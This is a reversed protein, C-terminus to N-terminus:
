NEAVEPMRTSISRKAVQSRLKRYSDGAVQCVRPLRDEMAIRGVINTVHLGVVQAGFAVLAEIAACRVDFHPDMEAARAVAEIGASGLVQEACLQFAESDDDTTDGQEPHKLIRGLMVVSFRRVAWADSDRLLALLKAVQVRADIGLNFLSARAAIRVFPSEDLEAADAVAAIGPPGVAERSVISGLAEVASYRLYENEAEQLVWVLKAAQVPGEIGFNCLAAAAAIRVQGIEDEETIRVVSAVVAEGLVQVDFEAIAQVAALRVCWDPDKLSVQMLAELGTPGIVEIGFYTLAKMAAQRVDRHADQQAVRILCELGPAGITQIGFRGLSRVAGRRVGQWESDKEALRLMVELGPAGLAEPGFGRLVAIAEQKLYMDPDEEAARLLVSIGDNGIVETGLHGLSAVIAKRVKESSDRPRETEPQKPNPTTWPALRGGVLSVFLEELATTTTTTTEVTATAATSSETKSPANAAISPSRVEDLVFAGCHGLSRAATLRLEEFNAQNECDKRGLCWLTLQSAWETGTVEIDLQLLQELAHAAAWRLSPHHRPGGFGRGHGPGHPHHHNHNRHPHHHCPAHQSESHGSITAALQKV